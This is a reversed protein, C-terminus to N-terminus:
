LNNSNQEVNLGQCHGQADGYFYIWSVENISAAMTVWVAPPNNVYCSYTTGASNTASCSLYVNASTNTIDANTVYAGLYCGIGARTDSSFRTAYVSGSATSGSVTVSSGTYVGAFAHAQLLLGVTAAAAIKFKNM